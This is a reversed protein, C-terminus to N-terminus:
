IRRWRFCDATPDTDRLISIQIISKIPNIINWHRPPAERTRGGPGETHGQRLMDAKQLSSDPTTLNPLCDDRKVLSRVIGISCFVVM